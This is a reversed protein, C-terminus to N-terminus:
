LQALESLRYQVGNPEYNLLIFSADKSIVEALFHLKVKDAGRFLNFWEITLPYLFAIDQWAQVGIRDLERIM